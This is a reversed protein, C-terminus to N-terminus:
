YFDTRYVPLAPMLREAASLAQDSHCVLLGNRALDAWSPQGLLAQVFARVDLELDATPSPSVKVSGDGFEVLWPGENEPILDDSVHLTFQGAAESRLCELAAPVDCVRFMVFREIEAKVGHDFHRAVFPGDSPEYWEVETKNIGIGALVSLISEYGRQTTWILESVEQGQWFQWAHQVVAYAEVPDGAAYITSKEGVIRSWHADTRLNMGSRGRSFAEYCPKLHEIDAVGLRRITLGPQLRPYQANPVTLKVRSGCAEYGFARYYSERFAYLSALPFGEERFHRLSWRMMDGGVGSRRYEPLVAVGAVGADRIVGDGRACNLDLIGFVGAVVGGVEGVYGRTTKFVREEPPIPRGDNYTMARVHFFAEQDREEYPRVVTEPM